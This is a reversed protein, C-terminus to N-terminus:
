LPSHLRPSGHTTIESSSYEKVMVRSKFSYEKKVIFDLFHVM